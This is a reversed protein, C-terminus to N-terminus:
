REYVVVPDDTGVSVHAHQVRETFHHRIRVAPHQPHRAGTPVRGLQPFRGTLALSRDREQAGRQLGGRVAQQDDIAAPLDYGVVLTQKIQPLKRAFDKRVLAEFVEQRQDVILELIAFGAQSANVLELALRPGLAEIREVEAISAEELAVRPRLADAVLDH